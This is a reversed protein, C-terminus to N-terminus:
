VPMGAFCTTTCSGCRQVAAGLVLCAASIVETDSHNLLRVVLVLGGISDLDRANDIQHVHYELEELAQILDSPSAHADALVQLQELMLEVEPHLTLIEQLFPLATQRATAGDEKMHEGAPAALLLFFCLM